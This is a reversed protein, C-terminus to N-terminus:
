ENNLEMKISSASLQLRVLNVKMKYGSQFYPFNEHYHLTETRCFASRLKNKLSSLILSKQEPLDRDLSNSFLILITAFKVIPSLFFVVRSHSHKEFIKKEM